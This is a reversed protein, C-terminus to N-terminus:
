SNFNSSIYILGKRGRGKSSAPVVTIKEQILLTDVFGDLEDAKVGHLSNLLDSRRIGDPGAKRINEEIKEFITKDIRHREALGIKDMMEMTHKDVANDFTIAENFHKEECYIFNNGVWNDKAIANLMTYKAVHEWRTQQYVNYDSPDNIVDEDVKRAMEKIKNRTASDIDVRLFTNEIDYLNASKRKKELMGNYKIMRPVLETEAFERLDKKCNSFEDQYPSKWDDMSFDSAKVYIIRMRRLLGQTSMKKTLYHQPEQMSAFMTVYLDPPIFRSKGKKRQSLSEKYQEGYYLRSLLTDMGSTYHQDSTIRKLIDGFEGSCLEFTRFGCDLGEMISDCVGQPTGDEIISKWVNKGANEKTFKKTQVYYKMLTSFLLKHNYGMITSRRGRGPICSLVFWVNPRGCKLDPMEFFQGLTVSIVHYALAIHFVMPADCYKTTIDMLKKLLCDTM